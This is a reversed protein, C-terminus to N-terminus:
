NRPLRRAADGAFGWTGNGAVTTIVGSSSVKRIRSNDIDAIYVNGFSDVAVRSQSSLEASTAAGNDGAFGQAGNGAVTTIIGGATVKRVRVNNTDAIYLNGSGDVAVGNPYNLDASTAPGGDGSYGQVGNGAVTTITGGPTVKRIRHNDTDAIYINGSSDVAVGYPFNLEASTAAGGDGSYSAAGDGAATTITGPTQASLPALAFLVAFLMIASANCFMRLFLSFSDAKVPVSPSSLLQQM